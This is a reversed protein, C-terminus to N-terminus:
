AFVYRGVVVGRGKMYVERGTEIIYGKNVMYDWARVPGENWHQQLGAGVVDDMVVVTDRDALQKCNHLDGLATNYDHGGDIFILDFKKDRHTMAYLPVTQLSNGGIFEHRGPYYETFYDVGVKTYPYMNLDFSTVRTNPSSTLFVECSHGANFGIEMINKSGKCLNYLSLVQVPFIQSHGECMKMADKEHLVDTLCKDVTAM